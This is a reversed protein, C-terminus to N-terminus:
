VFRQHISEHSFEIRSCSIISNGLSVIMKNLLMHGPFTKCFTSSKLQFLLRKLEECSLSILM